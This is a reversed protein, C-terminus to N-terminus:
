KTPSYDTPKMFVSKVGDPAPLTLPGDKESAAKASVWDPDARFAAFSAAAAEKSKHTLLYILTNDAGNNADMPTFYGFQGMGHKAFLGATHDRFRAQLAALKDPPTRYTRMEFVRGEGGASARVAPSFDTAALYTSEVKTVLRGNAETQKVVEKWDPDAGFEQWSKRAADRSPYALLYILQNDPNDMPMWYGLSTMGHKEFLKLTHNRFRANLDDLKGPAADAYYIRLEFCRSDKGPSEAATLLPVGSASFLLSLALLIKM